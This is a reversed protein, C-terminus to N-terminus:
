RKCFYTRGGYRVRIRFTRNREDAFRHVCLWRGLRGCARGRWRYTAHDSPCTNARHCPHRHAQARDPVVAAIALAAFVTAVALAVILRVATM